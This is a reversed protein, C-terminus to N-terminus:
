APPSVTVLISPHGTPSLASTLQSGSAGGAHLAVDLFRVTENRVAVAQPSSGNYIGEHDGGSVTLLVKTTTAAAQFIAKSRPFLGYQDATGAAVLLAGTTPAGWPGAVGAPIEGSLALYARVRRDAYSPNLALLAVDTGGDSHGAVAIRAPDVRRASDGTLSGIVFSIDRAQEPYNSVPTGPLTNTSDPLTPAAVVYGAAAWADLLPAYDTPNINWGHAFVVLPM